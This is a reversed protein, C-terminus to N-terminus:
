EPTLWWGAMEAGKAFDSKAADLFQSQAQVWTMIEAYAQIVGTEDTTAFAHSFHRKVWRALEDKGRELEKKVQM